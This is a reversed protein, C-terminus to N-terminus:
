RLWHLDRRCGCRSRHRDPARRFRDVTHGGRRGRTRFRAVARGPPPARGTGLLATRHGSVRRRPQGAGSAQRRVAPQSCARHTAAAITAAAAVARSNAWQALLVGGSVVVAGLVKAPGISEDLFVVSWIMALAVEVTLIMAVVGASINRMARYFCINAVVTPVLAFFVLESAGRLNGPVTLGDRSFAVLPIFALTAATLNWASTVAGDLRPPLVKGSIIMYAAFLVAQSLALMVGLASISGVGTFLEPVTLVVGIMVVVLALWTGKAPPTGLLVSGLVVFMPYLYVLVIYVSADLYRLAVFGPITLLGYLVGVPMLSRWPVDFPDPGGRRRWILLAVWLVVSALFFRWFLMSLVGLSNLLHKGVISSLSYSM